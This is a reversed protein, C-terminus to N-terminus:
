QTGVEALAPAAAPTAECADHGDAVNGYGFGDNIVKDYCPQVCFYGCSIISIDTSFAHESRATHNAKAM